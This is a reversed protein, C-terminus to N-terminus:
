PSRKPSREVYEQLRDWVERCMACLILRIRTGLTPVSPADLEDGAPAEHEHLASVDASLYGESAAEVHAGLM